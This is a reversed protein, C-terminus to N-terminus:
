ATGTLDSDNVVGTTGDANKVLSQKTGAIFGADGKQAPRVKTVPKGKYMLSMTKKEKPHGVGEFRFPSGSISFSIRPDTAKFPTMIEM